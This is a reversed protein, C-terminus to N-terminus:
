IGFGMGVRIFPNIGFVFQNSRLNFLLAITMYANSGMWQRYGGGAYLGDISILPANGPNYYSDRYYLKEYEVHAFLDDFVFYRAFIKIGYTSVNYSPMITKDSYYQYSLGLGGYLKETIAYAAVPAIYISSISGFSLGFNGGLYLRSGIGQSGMNNSPRSQAIGTLISISFIFLLISRCIILHVSKM